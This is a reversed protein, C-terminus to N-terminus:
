GNEMGTDTGAPYIVKRIIDAARSCDLETSENKRIVPAGTCLIDEDRLQAYILAYKKRNEPSWNTAANKVAREMKGEGTDRNINETLSVPGFFRNQAEHFVPKMLGAEASTDPVVGFVSMFDGINLATYYGIEIGLMETLIRRGADYAKEGDYYSYLKSFTVSQPLLANQNALRRYLESSMTYAVAPDIYIYGALLGSCNLVELVMHEVKGSSPNYAYIINLPAPEVASSDPNGKEDANDGDTIAGDAGDTREQKNDTGNWLMGADFLFANREAESVIGAAINESITYGAVVALAVSLTCAMFILLKNKKKM